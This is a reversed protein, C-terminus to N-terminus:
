YQSLHKNTNSDKYSSDVANRSFFSPVIKPIPLQAVLLRAWAASPAQLSRTLLAALCVKIVAKM